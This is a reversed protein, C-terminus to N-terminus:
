NSVFFLHVLQRVLVVVDKCEVVLQCEKKGSGQLEMPVM